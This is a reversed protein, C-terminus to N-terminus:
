SGVASTTSGAWWRPPVTRACGCELVLQSECELVLQSECELVLQWECELVLQWECELVLQWECELVLQWECELVLQRGGAPVHADLELRHVVEVECLALHEPGLPRM